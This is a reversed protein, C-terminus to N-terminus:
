GKPRYNEVLAKGVDDPVLAVLARIKDWHRESAMYVRHDDSYHAYWDHSKLAKELAYVPDNTVRDAEAKIERALARVAEAAEAKTPKDGPVYGNAGEPGAAMGGWATLPAKTVLGVFDKRDMPEHWRPNSSDVDLLGHEFVLAYEHGAMGRFYNVHRILSM